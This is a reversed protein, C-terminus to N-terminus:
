ATVEFASAIWTEVDARRYVVRRGLKGCKPGRRTHQLWRITAVSKRTLAAVEETYLLDSNLNAIAETLAPLDAQPVTIGRKIRPM